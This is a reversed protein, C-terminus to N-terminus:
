QITSGQLATLAENSSKYLEKIKNLNTIAKTNDKYKVNFNLTLSKIINWAKDKESTTLLKKWLSNLKVNDNKSMNFSMLNPLLESSTPAPKQETPNYRSGQTAYGHESGRGIRGQLGEELFEQYTMIM